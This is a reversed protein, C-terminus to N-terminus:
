RPREPDPSVLADICDSAEAIDFNTISFSAPDIAWGAVIDLATVTAISM